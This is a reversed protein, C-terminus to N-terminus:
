STRRLLKRRLQEDLSMLPYVLLVQSFVVTHVM